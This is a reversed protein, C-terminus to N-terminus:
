EPAKSDNNVQNSHAILFRDIEAEIRQTVSSTTRLQGNKWRSIESPYMGAVSACLDKTTGGAAEFKRYLVARDKALRSNPATRGARGPTMPRRPKEALGCSRMIRKPTLRPADVQLLEVLGRVNFGTQMRSLFESSLRDLASELGDHDSFVHQSCDIATVIFQYLKSLFFDREEGLVGPYERFFAKSCGSSLTTSFIDLNSPDLIYCQQGLYDHAATTAASIM